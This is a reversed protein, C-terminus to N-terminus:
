VAELFYVVCFQSNKMSKGGLNAREVRSCPKHNWQERNEAKVEGWSRRFAATNINALLCSIFSQIDAASIELYRVRLEMLSWGQCMCDQQASVPSPYSIYMLLPDYDSELHKLSVKGLVCTRFWYRIFYRLLILLSFFLQSIISVLISDGWM